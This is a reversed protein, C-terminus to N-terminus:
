GLGAAEELDHVRPTDHARVVVRSRALNVKQDLGLAQGPAPDASGDKLTM